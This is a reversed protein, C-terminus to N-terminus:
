LNMPEFNTKNGVPGVGVFLGPVQDGAPYFENKLIFLELGSRSVAPTQRTINHMCRLGKFVRHHYFDKRRDSLVVKLRPECNGGAVPPPDEVPNLWVKVLEREQPEPRFGRAPILSRSVTGTALYIIQNTDM